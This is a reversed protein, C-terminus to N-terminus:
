RPLRPQPFQTQPIHRTPDPKPLHGFPQPPVHPPPTPRPFGPSPLVPTMSGIQPEYASFDDAQEPPVFRIPANPPLCRPLPRGIAVRYTRGPVLQGEIFLDAQSAAVYQIHRGPPLDPPPATGFALKISPKMMELHREMVINRSPPPEAVHERKPVYYQGQPPHLIEHLQRAWRADQPPAMKVCWEFCEIAEDRRNNCLLCHGRNNLFHILEERRTLSKGYWGMRRDEETQPRPWLEYHSDPFVGLGQGTAEINFRERPLWLGRQGDWRCYLHDKAEVLVLPYDMRRSVAVYLVPMSSCTGGPGHLIGHLFLDRSDSFDPNVSYPDQFHPDNIRAPNYRVGLDRQLVTIQVLMRYYAPSNEFEAPDALFRHWNRRTQHFVDDTWHAIKALSAGIDLNEAGPLGQACALNLEATDIDALDEETLRHFDSVPVRLLSM